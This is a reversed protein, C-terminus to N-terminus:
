VWFIAFFTKHFGFYNTLQAFSRLMYFNQCLVCLIDVCGVATLFLLLGISFLWVVIGGVRIDFWGVHCCWLAGYHLLRDFHGWLAVM